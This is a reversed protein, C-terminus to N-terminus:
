PSTQFPPACGSETLRTLGGFVVIGFVSAASGLLWYAVYRPSTEPFAKKSGGQAASRAEAGESAVTNNVSSLPSPSPATAYSRLRASQVLRSLPAQAKQHQLCQRCVFAPKPLQLAARRLGLKLFSMATSEARTQPRSLQCHQLSHARRIDPVKQAVRASSDRSKRSRVTADRVSEKSIGLM